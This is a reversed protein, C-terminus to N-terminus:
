TLESAKWALYVKEVNLLLFFPLREEKSIWFLFTTMNGSKITATDEMLLM